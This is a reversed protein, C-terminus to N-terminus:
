MSFAIVIERDAAQSACVLKYWGGAALEPPLIIADDAAASALTPASDDADRVSKYTGSESTASLFTVDGSTFSSPFYAIAMRSAMFFPSSETEGSNVTITVQKFQPM